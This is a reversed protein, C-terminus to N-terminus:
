KHTKTGIGGKIRAEVKAQEEVTLVKEATIEEDKVDLEGDPYECPALSWSDIEENVGLEQQIERIRSSKEEIRHITESKVKLVKESERNFAEKLERIQSKLLHMQKIKRDRATLEFPHYLLAQTSLDIAFMLVVRHDVSM